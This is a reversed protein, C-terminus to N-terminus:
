IGARSRVLLTAKPLDGLAETGQNGGGYFSSSYFRSTPNNHPNLSNIYTLQKSMHQVTAPWANVIIFITLILLPVLFKLTHHM